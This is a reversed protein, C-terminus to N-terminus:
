KETPQKSIVIENGRSEIRVGLAAKAVQGFLDVNTAPFKGMVTLRAAAQDAIVLKKTNYRNFEAAADALTTYNFVLLGQRWALDSALKKEPRKTVIVKQATAVVVDGPTLDSPTMRINARAAEFRARGEVLAVELRNTDSRVSFATGLDIVRYDGATVVFPRTQEHTVQFYAEGKDLWVSRARASIRARLVTNTNLEIRTGDALTITKHAGLATSYTQTQPANLFVAAGTGALTVLAIAAVAALSFRHKRSQSKVHKSRNAPEVRLAVLRNSRTLMTELRVYAVRHATAESLWANLKAEDEPSWNKSDQREFVWDAARKQIDTASSKRSESM